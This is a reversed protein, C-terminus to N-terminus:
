ASERRNLKIRNPRVDTHTTQLPRRDARKVEKGKVPRALDDSFHRSLQVLHRSSRETEVCSGAILM